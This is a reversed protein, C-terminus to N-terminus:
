DEFTEAVEKLKQIIDIDQPCKEECDGCAVCASARKDDDFSGNYFRKMRDFEDYIFANNYFSFIQPINIENPCPLCYKCDTCNVKLRKRYSERVRSVTEKEEESLSNPKVNEATTMNEKIHEMTSMGSLVIKVEPHNWVWRLGWEAPSWERNSSHWLENIDDPIDGTLMGGKLPEMVIVDLGKEHAHKLGRKGAQYNIDMYNYQIQCFDWKYSDIIEKFIEYKDHFSFGIYRVKESDELYDLFRFVDNEKLNNWHKKGLSHMLYYDIYDTKLRDLQSDLYEYMEEHKEIKWSPLKTAIFVEERDIKQLFKGLFPESQENHYPYATDFYNIGREFAYDLMKMSKDEVINGDETPFRMCGFGLISVKDGSCNM